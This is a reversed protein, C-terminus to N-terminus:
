GVNKLLVSRSFFVKPNDVVEFGLDLLSNVMEKFDKKSVHFNPEVILLHGGHKLITKMEKLFNQKHPVEHVMYFAFIFDVTNTIGTREAECKHLCIIKEMEAGRIKNSLIQLMGEQLDAAIVRGSPGVMKAMEITFVGPGCGVDLATMGERIYPQLIKKPNHFFKRIRSDLGGANEVPCVRNNKERSM